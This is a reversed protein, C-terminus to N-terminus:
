FISFKSFYFLFKKARCFKQASFNKPFIARLFQFINKPFIFKQFIFKLFRSFLKKFKCFIFFIKLFFERFIIKTCFNGCNKTRFQRRFFNKRRAFDRASKFFQRSCHQLKARERRIKRFHFKKGAARFSIKQGRSNKRYIRRFFNLFISKQNHLFNRSFQLRVSFQWFIKSNISFFLFNPFNYIQLILV